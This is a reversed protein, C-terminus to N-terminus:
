GTSDKYDVFKLLGEKVNPFEHFLEKVKDKYFKFLSQEHTYKSSIQMVSTAQEVWTISPALALFSAMNAFMEKTTDYEFFFFFSGSYKRHLEVFWLIEKLIAETVQAKNPHKVIGEFKRATGFAINSQASDMPNRIPLLFKLRKDMAFVKEFNFNSKRILNVNLLPEKWFLCTIDEKVLGMNSEKFIKSLEYKSDFAHAYTISGGLSGRVGGASAVIAFQIFRNLKKISFNSIFNISGRWHIRNGAHNLVQCNPHLFLTASTLTSLNRYPGLALCITTCSKIDIIKSKRQLSIDSLHRKVHDIVKLTTWWIEQL